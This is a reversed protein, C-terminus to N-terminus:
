RPEGNDDIPEVADEPENGQGNGLVANQTIANELLARGYSFYLGADEERPEEGHTTTSILSQDTRLKSLRHV